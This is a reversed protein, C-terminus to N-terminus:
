FNAYITFSSPYLFGNPYKNFHKELFAVLERFIQEEEKRTYEKVIFYKFEFEKGNYFYIGHLYEFPRQEAQPFGEIDYFVDGENPEPM